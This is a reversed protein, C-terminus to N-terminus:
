LKTKSLFICWTSLYTLWRWLVPEPTFAPMRLCSWSNPLLCFTYSYFSSNLWLFHFVITRMPSTMWLLTSGGTYITTCDAIGISTNRLFKVKTSIFPFPFAMLSERVCSIKLADQNRQGKKGTSTYCSTTRSQKIHGLLRNPYPSISYKHKKTVVYWWVKKKKKRM